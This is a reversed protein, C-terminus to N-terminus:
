LKKLATIEKQNQLKEFTREPTKQFHTNLFIYLVGGQNGETPYLLLFHNIARVARYTKTTTALSTPLQPQPRTNKSSQLLAICSRRCSMQVNGRSQRATQSSPFKVGLGQCGVRIRLGSTKDGLHYTGLHVTAQTNGAHTHPPPSPSHPRCTVSSLLCFALMINDRSCCLLMSKNGFKRFFKLYGYSRILFEYIVKTTM